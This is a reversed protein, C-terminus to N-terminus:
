VGKLKERVGFFSQFNSNRGSLDVADGTSCTDSVTLIGVRINM